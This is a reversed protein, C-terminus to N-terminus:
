SKESPKRSRYVLVPIQCSALVKSTVSGLLLRGWGSRGHSGMIILDCRNEEATSVIIQDVDDSFFVQTSYTLGAQAALNKIDSLVVEGEKEVGAKYEEETLLDSPAMEVYIPYKYESGVFIGMVEANIQRAFEVGARAADMSLPSGDAPILIKKFM